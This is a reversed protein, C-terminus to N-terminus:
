LCPRDPFRRLAFVELKAPGIGDPNILERVKGYTDEPSRGNPWNDFAM